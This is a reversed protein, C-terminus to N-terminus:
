TQTPRNGGGISDGEKGLRRLNYLFKQKFAISFEKESFGSFLIANILFAMCDVLEDLKNNRDYQENRINKWRKDAELVEGIEGVLSLISYKFSEVSDTPVEYGFMKKQLTEQMMFYVNLDM